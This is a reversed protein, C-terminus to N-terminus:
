KFVHNVAHLCTLRRLDEGVAPTRECYLVDQYNFIMPAISKELEDFSPRQESVVAALKQKLKLEGPGSITSLTATLNSEDDQPVNIVAKGVGPIVAKRTLCQNNQVSKLRRVLVAEDPDAFHTEFPDSSDEAEEDDELLGDTATEPGEEEEVEDVKDEREADELTEKDAELEQPEQVHELKRRKPQPASESALSRM